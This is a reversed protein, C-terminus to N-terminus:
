LHRGDIRVNHSSGDNGGGSFLPLPFVTGGALVRDLSCLVAVALVRTDSKRKHRIVHACITRAGGGYPYCCTSLIYGSYFGEFALCLWGRLWASHKYFTYNKSMSTKYLWAFGVWYGPM